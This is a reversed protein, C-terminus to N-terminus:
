PLLALILFVALIGTVIFAVTGHRDVVTVQAQFRRPDNQRSRRLLGTGLSLILLGGLVARVMLMTNDTDYM